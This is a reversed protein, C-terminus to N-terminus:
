WFKEWKVAKRALGRAVLVERVRRITAEGGAVYAVLGDVDPALREVAAPLAEPDRDVLPHYLFGPYRRALSHLDGDYVLDAASSARYVLSVPRGIGTEYLWTLMSRVPVVGIEEAVFLPRRPDACSFTFGGLPGKFTVADGPALAGFWRSGPGGPAVDACLTFGADHRPPSAISYVRVHQEDMPVSIWQGARFDLRPPDEMRLRAEVIAPALRRVAM